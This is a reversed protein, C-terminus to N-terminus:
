VCRFWCGWGFTMNHYTVCRGGISKARWGWGWQGQICGLILLADKDLDLTCRNTFDDGEVVVVGDLSTM